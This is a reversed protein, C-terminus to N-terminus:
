GSRRKALERVSLGSRPEIADPAIDCLPALVFMRKALRPHPVSLRSDEIVESGYLLLDLDMARPRGKQRSSPRGFSREVLQMADLLEHASLGTRIAATGNIYAPASPDPGGEVTMAATERWRSVRVVEMGPCGRLREVAAECNAVRDGLNSGIGIYATQM